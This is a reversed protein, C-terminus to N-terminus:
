SARFASCKTRLRTASISPEPSTPRAMVPSSIACICFVCTWCTFVHHFLYNAHSGEVYRYQGGSDLLYMNSKDIKAASSPDPKYHIIAGNSGFGSITEFSLGVFHAQESFFHMCTFQACCVHLNLCPVAVLHFLTCACVQSVPLPPRRRLM